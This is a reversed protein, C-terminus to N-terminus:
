MLVHLGDSEICIFLTFMRILWFAVSHILALTFFYARLKVCCLHICICWDSLYFYAIHKIYVCNLVKFLLLLIFVIWKYVCCFCRCDWLESACFYLYSSKEKLLQIKQPEVCKGDHYSFTFYSSIFYFFFKVLYLFVVVLTFRARVFM